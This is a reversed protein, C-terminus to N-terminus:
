VEDGGGGGERGGERGSREKGVAGEGGSREWREKGGEGRDRGRM